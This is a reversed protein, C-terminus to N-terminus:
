WGFDLVVVLVWYIYVYLSLLGSERVGATVRRPTGPLCSGGRFGGPCTVSGPLHGSSGAGGSVSRSCPHRARGCCRRAESQGRGAGPQPSQMGAPGKRGARTGHSVWVLRKGGGEATSLTSDRRLRNNEPWRKKGGRRVVGAEGSGEPRSLALPFCRAPRQRGVCLM